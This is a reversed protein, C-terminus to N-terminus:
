KVRSNESVAAKQSATSDLNLVALILVLDKNQWIAVFVTQGVLDASRVISNATLGTATGEVVPTGPSKLDAVSFNFFSGNAYNSAAAGEDKFQIVFNVVVQYPEVGPDASQSKFAACHGSSDTFLATYAATAGGARAADWESKVTAYTSPDAAKEADLFSAIDGSLDCRVMGPPLDRSQVAVTSLSSGPAPQPSAGCAALAATVVLAV